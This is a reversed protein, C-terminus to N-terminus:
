TYYDCHIIDKNEDPGFVGDGNHHAFLYCIFSNGEKNVEDANGVVFRNANPDTYHWWGEASTMAATDNLPTLAQDPEEEEDIEYLNVFEFGNKAMADDLIKIM